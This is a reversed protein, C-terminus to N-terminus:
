GMGDWGMGDWGIIPMIVTVMISSQVSGPSVTVDYAGPLWCCQVVSYQETIYFSKSKLLACVKQKDDGYEVFNKQKSTVSQV